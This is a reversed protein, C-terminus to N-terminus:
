HASAVAAELAAPTVTGAVIRGDNLMLVNILPSQVLRGSGWKGSVPVAAKLLIGAQGPLGGNTTSIVVQTWHGVVKTPDAQAPAAQAPAAEISGAMPKGRREVRAGGFMGLGLSSTTTVHANPPPTFNFTSVAPRSFSVSTFGLQLAPKSQNKAFLSVQLPLGTASDVAIGVHDVTSQAANPRLVLKYVARGAVYAPTTVTVSTSPTIQDLLQKAAQDPTEITGTKPAAEPKGAAGHIATSHMHSVQSGSSVWTWVDAGNHVVDTEALSSALAIRQRDPGDFWVRADHSGSLLDLPNFAADHGAAGALSGLNPIGLNATLRINGSLAKVNTQQVKVLLQQPTLPSLSPTAAGASLTPALAVLGIVAAVVFPAAWHMSRSRRSSPM